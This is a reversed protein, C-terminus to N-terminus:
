GCGPRDPEDGYGSGSPLSLAEKSLARAQRETFIVPRIEKEILSAYHSEHVPGLILIPKPIGHRRLLLAEEATAM